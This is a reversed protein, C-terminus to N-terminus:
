ESSEGQTGEGYSEGGCEDDDDDSYTLKSVKGGAVAQGIKAEKAKSQRQQNQVMMLHQQRKQEKILEAEELSAPIRHREYRLSELHLEAQRKRQM